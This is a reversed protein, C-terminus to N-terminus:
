VDARENNSWYRGLRRAYDYMQQHLGSLLSVETPSLAPHWLDVILVLRDEDTHNWAEHEFHDDFVLCRGEQWGRSENGVRLACDGEPVQIGLHCRVRLNTPGRHPAIYTGPRMRSLYILGAPTRLAEPSQAARATVPCAALAERNPRGREFLFVVEWDGSRPISESERRFRAPDLALLEARIEEHRSELYRAIRFSDPDYWPRSPLDPYRGVAGAGGAALGEVYRHFRRRGASRDVQSAPRTAGPSRVAELLARPDTVEVRRSRAQGLGQVLECWERYSLRKDWATGLRGLRARAHEGWEQASDSDGSWAALYGLWVCPEAVVPCSAAAIALRSARKGDDDARSVGALYARRALQEEAASTTALTALFLPPQVTDSDAILDALERLRVLWRGPSGDPSRVQDALNAMHLLLVCDLEGRTPPPQAGGNSRVVTGPAWRHTGALLPDRPTVCFLYVLREAREGILEVLEHRRSLPLLERHYADTGYVSHALAAHQLWLPQDWRGVIEQTEVLHELLTRGAAHPAEAAGLERLLEILPATAAPAVM